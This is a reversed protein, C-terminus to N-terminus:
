LRETVPQLRWEHHNPGRLFRRDHGHIDPRVGGELSEARSQWQLTSLFNVLLFHSCSKMYINVVSSIWQLNNCTYFKHQGQFATPLLSWGVRHCWHGEVHTSAMSSCASRGPCTRLPPLQGVLSVNM